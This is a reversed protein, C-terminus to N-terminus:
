QGGVIETFDFVRLARHEPLNTPPVIFRIVMGEVPDPTGEVVARLGRFAPFRSGVYTVPTGDRLDEAVIIRRNAAIIIRDSTELDPSEGDLIDGIDIEPLSAPPDVTVLDEPILLCECNGGCVSWGSGPLGIREWEDLTLGGMGHRPACDDCVRPGRSTRWQLTLTGAEARERLSQTTVAM